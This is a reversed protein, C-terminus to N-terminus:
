GAERNDVCAPDGEISARRSAEENERSASVYCLSLGGACMTDLRCSERIFAGSDGTPNM